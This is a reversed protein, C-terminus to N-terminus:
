RPPLLRKEQFLRQWKVFMAETDMVECFGAQMLKVTSSFSPPAPESRGHGMQYDAYQFSLGVFTALDPSVLDYKARIRSWDGERPRIEKELSCPVADGPEMGFANAIAPWINPWCYVDGNAVNFTENRAAPAEGAWAMARALLDADVAQGLRPPGGPYHLPQGSDKLLAAYAGIAPIVNMASGMSYGVILVPRFISFSWAKDRQKERLFDEQNWYFNPQERMESRGERAPYKMPRVHSGYAKTGQLLSVHTLGRAARELPEMLNRLMRDNVAIQEADVWGAILGPKEYLAAYIVHTVQGLTSIADACARGDTLDAAVFRAGFTEDPRRRSVAIVDCGPDAAFHKMAAYGVLGSAGAVLVTKKAM